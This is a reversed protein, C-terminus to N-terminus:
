RRNSHKLALARLEEETDWRAERIMWSPAANAALLTEFFGLRCYSCPSLEWARIITKRLSDNKNADAVDRLGLVARHLNDKAHLSELAILLLEGDSDLYNRAFLEFAFAKDKGARKLLTLALSRVNPDTVKSLARIARSRLRLDSHVSYRAIMPDYRPLNGIAFVGLLAAVKREDVHKTLYSLALDRSAPSAERGFRRAMSYAKTDNVAVRRRLNAWSVPRLTPRRRRALQEALIARYHIIDPDSSELTKKANSEGLKQKAVNYIAEAAYDPITRKRRSLRGVIKVLRAYGDIGDVAIAEDDGIVNDRLLEREFVAYLAEKFEVDGSAAYAGALEALQRTAAYTHVRRM